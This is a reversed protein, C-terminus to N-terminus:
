PLALAETAIRHANAMVTLTFTTAAINPLVAADVLHIRNWNGVRGVPDSSQFTSRTAHHPFSSGFHYSKGPASISLLPLVPYLDLLPAARLARWLVRRLMRRGGDPVPGGGISVDPLQDPGSSTSARLALRPSRWSPLYGIAVSLRRLLQVRLPTMAGWRLPGPLAEAFAPNYTYFHLQALDHAEDDEALTMNFQNLTLGRDRRPDPTPRASVMPLVFQQSEAMQVTTEFADLSGLVIRTSGIGGCAVFVRDAHLREMSGSAIDRALVSATGDDEELRVALLGGRYRVRGSARLRDFTHSASYILGYPCGTLCLGASVCSRGDVALRARGVTVGWRRLRSRHHRYRELVATTRLSLPPLPRPTVLIPFDRALDDDEAAYPIAALIARYHDDLSRIPWARTVAAAFPMIQAGWVNSFGGYAGSVVDGNADDITTIGSTQGADRFPFDSGYARKQPLSGMGARVPQAVIAGVDTPDWDDPDLERLTNLAARREPELQHGIDVVTIELDPVDELALAVGAAAPGSGVILASRVADDRHRAPLCAPIARFSITCPALLTWRPVGLGTGAM